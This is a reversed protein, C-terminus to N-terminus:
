WKNVIPVMKKICFSWILLLQVSVTVVNFVHKSKEDGKNMCLAEM